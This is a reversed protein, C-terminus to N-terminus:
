SKAPMALQARQHEFRRAFEGRLHLRREAVIRAKGVQAGGHDKTPCAVTLLIPTQPLTHIHQNRGWAPEEILHMPAHDAEILDFNQNQILGVPHQIHPKQGIHALDDLAARAATLGQQKGRRDRRFNFLKASPCQAIRLADLNALSTRRGFSDCMREIRHIDSLLLFQEFFQEPAGIVILHQNETPGFVAGVPNRALQVLFTVGHRDQMRASSLTFPFIGEATKPVASVFDHDGRVDSRAADIHFLDTMDDIKIHRMMRFVVHVTDAAGPSCLADAIRECNHGCFIQLFHRGDLVEDALFNGPHLQFSEIVRIAAQKVGIWFRSETAPWM